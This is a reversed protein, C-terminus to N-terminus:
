IMPLPHDKAIVSIKKALEVAARNRDDPNVEGMQRITEIFLRMTSQQLTKHATCIVKAFANSDYGFRNVFDLLDNALREAEQKKTDM